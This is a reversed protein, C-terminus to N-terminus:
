SNIQSKLASYLVRLDQAGHARVGREVLGRVDEPDTDTVNRQIRYVFGICVPRM